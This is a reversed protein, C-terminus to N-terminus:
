PILFTAPFIRCSKKGGYGKSCFCRCIPGALTPSRRRKRWRPNLPSRRGLYRPLKPCRVCKPPRGRRASAPPKVTEPSLRTEVAAIAAEAEEGGAAGFFDHAAAVALRRRLRRCELAYRAADPPATEQREEWNLQALLRRADATIEGYEEERAAQIAGLMAQEDAESDYAMSLLAATGGSALVRERIALLAERVGERQPVVAVAPQLYVAGLEKLAKWVAVRYRSPNAPISYSLAWFKM